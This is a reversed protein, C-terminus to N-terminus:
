GSRGVRLECAPAVPVVSRGASPAAIPIPVDIARLATPALEEVTAHELAIVQVHDAALVSAAGRALVLTADRAAVDVADCAWIRAHDHAEVIAGESARVCAYDRASVRVADRADVVDRGAVHFKGAGRLTPIADSRDLVRQLDRQAFVEVTEIREGARTTM